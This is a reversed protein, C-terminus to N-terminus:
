VDIMSGLPRVWVRNSHFTSQGAMDALVDSTTWNVNTGGDLKAWRGKPSVVVGPRTEKTVVARLRCSGRGNFVLVTEGNRIRRPVADDPHIEIFPTGANKLLGPQSALSSSVFHHSAPTLLQLAETIASLHESAEVGGDDEADLFRGPMPDIGQEALTQSFLEVKGSPTPFRAGAFPTSDDIPMPVAGESKLRELTIGRLEPSKELVEEIVEDASQHLWTEQLGLSDALLGMVEWNSKCEGRPAIAPRNYTLLTTGYGKHLDTQELQSTAPLVIDAYDATDTLFLEHVVTFLDPRKMGQVIRAANPSSAAPNAGFVYLSRIPPDHAEGLLAMGLRNMNIKRGKRPCDSWHNIAEGNWRGYDSTSYSLGGGRMGYQGTLAPLACIARVNQGGNRNRNIGDAIKILAPELTGYLRALRIIDEAPLGTIAAACQPPYEALRERLQPWGVTHEQLWKENHLGEAVLVHAMAMALVGDSGPRPAIHWDAGRATQTRHPDIVIVQCGSHQAQRLFPMFHPATTVPNHGWILVLKSDLVESYPPSWRKGVSAKVALEAAACCITRELRSAGMRNWLRASSVIMQVLGLTGSYSYPLIAEAGSEAIITKWRDAIETLAENWSIRQWQGGGKPGVRRLPFMLRDPHYVHNLYPRVKACLWGRTVPNDPDGRVSVAEGDQVETIIGCTDPCDHPCAGRVHLRGM